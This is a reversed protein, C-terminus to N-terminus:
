VQLEILRVDLSYVIPQIAQSLQIVIYKRANTCTSSDIHFYREQSCSSKLGNQFQMNYETESNKIVVSKIITLKISEKQNVM